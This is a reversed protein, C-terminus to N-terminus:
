RGSKRQHSKLWTIGRKIAPNNKPIGAQRLAFIVMATAYGDSEQNQPESDERQWSDDGLHILVWGGDSQQLARLEKIWQQKQDPTVLDPAYRSAWLLMAKQHKSTTPNVTLYNRLRQRARTTAPKQQYADPTMALAALSVGFHDDVEFPAWHCKLWDQWAGSESQQTWIYDLAAATKPHLEKGTTMEGIALFCSTAVADEIAVHQDSPKSQGNVAAALYDRAFERSDLLVQPDPTVSSGAVLHLGNTHCTVCGHQEQWRTVSREIFDISKEASFSDAM